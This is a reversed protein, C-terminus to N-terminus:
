MPCKSPCTKAQFEADRTRVQFKLNYGRTRTISPAFHLFPRRNCSEWSHIRVRISDNIQLCMAAWEYIMWRRSGVASPSPSLPPHFAFEDEKRREDSVRSAKPQCKLAYIHIYGRTGIESEERSDWQVNNSNVFSRRPKVKRSHSVATATCVHRNRKRRKKKLTKNM